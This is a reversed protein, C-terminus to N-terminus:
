IGSGFKNYFQKLIELFNVDLYKMVESKIDGPIGYYAEAVGGAIAAITDSDGGISVANRICDEFGESEFFAELAQPVSGQCSVDFEYNPRIEDLTFDLKYYNEEIYKKIEKKNKGTRAMYIAVVTAEAGKLGEPHNHTVETVLRSMEIAESLSNAAFGCPSVRMAAGNGWSKYAQMDDMILWRRFSGGYGRGPYNRGWKRMYKVAYKGLDSLDPKSDILAEAIAVTMVSDDTFSSEWFATIKNAKPNGYFFDFNKSKFNNFEFRSGVVDGIIAGLM